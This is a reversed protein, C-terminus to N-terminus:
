APDSSWVRACILTTEQGSRGHPLDTEGGCIYDCHVFRPEVEVFGLGLLLGHYPFVGIRWVWLHRPSLRSSLEHEHKEHVRM